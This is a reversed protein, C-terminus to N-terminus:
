SVLTFMCSSITLYVGLRFSWITIAWFITRCTIFNLQYVFRKCLLVILLLWGRMLFELTKLSSEPVREWKTTFSLGFIHIYHKDIIHQTYSTLFWCGFWVLNTKLPLGFINGMECHNVWRFLCAIVTYCGPSRGFLFNEENQIAVKWCEWTM